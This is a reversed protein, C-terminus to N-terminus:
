LSHMFCFLLCVYGDPDKCTFGHSGFSLIMLLLVVCVANVLFQFSLLDGSASSFLLLYSSSCWSVCSNLIFIHFPFSPISSVRKFSLSFFQPVPFSSLTGSSVLRWHYSICPLHESSCSLPLLEMCTISRTYMCIQTVYKQTTFSGEEHLWLITWLFASQLSVLFLLTVSKKSPLKECLSASSCTAWPPQPHGM